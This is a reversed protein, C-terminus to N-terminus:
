HIPRFAESIAQSLAARAGAYEPRVVYSSRYGGRFELVGGNGSAHDLADRLPNGKPALKGSLLCARAQGRQLLDAVIFGAAFKTSAKTPPGKPRWKLGNAVILLPSLGALFAVMNWPESSVRPLWEQLEDLHYEAKFSTRRLLDALDEQVFKVDQTRDGTGDLLQRVGNAGRVVLELRVMDALKAYAKLTIDRRGATTSWRVSAGESSLMNAQDGPHFTTVVKRMGHPFTGHLAVIQAVADASPIDTCVELEALAVLPEPVDDPVALARRVARWAAALAFAAADCQMDQLVGQNAESLPGIWNDGGDLARGEVHWGHDRCLIDRLLVMGNITFRSRPSVVWGVGGAYAFTLEGHVFRMGGLFRSFNVRQKFRGVNPVDRPENCLGAAALAGLMSRLVDRDPRRQDNGHGPVPVAQRLAVTMKDIFALWRPPPHQFVPQHPGPADATTSTATQRSRPAFPVVNHFPAHHTM